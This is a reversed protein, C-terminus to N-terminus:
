YQIYKKYEKKAKESWLIFYLKGTSTAYVPYTKGQYIVKNSTLQKNLSDLNFTKNKPISNINGFSLFTILTLIITLKKM